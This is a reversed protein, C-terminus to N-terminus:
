KKSFLLKGLLILILVIVLVVVVLTSQDANSLLKGVKNLTVKIGSNARSM